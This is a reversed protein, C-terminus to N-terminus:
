IDEGLSNLEVVLVVVRELGINRREVADEEARLREEEAPDKRGEVGDINERIVCKM